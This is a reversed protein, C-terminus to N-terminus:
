CVLPSCREWVVVKGKEEGERERNEGVSYPFTGSKGVSGRIERAVRGAEGVAFDAM